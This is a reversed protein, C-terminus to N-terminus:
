SLHLFFVDIQFGDSGMDLQDTWECAQYLLDMVQLVMHTLAYIFSPLPIPFLSCLSYQCKLRDANGM